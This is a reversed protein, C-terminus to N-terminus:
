KSPGGTKVIEEPYLWNGKLRTRKMVVMGQTFLNKFPENFDFKKSYQNIAKYFDQIFYIYYQM